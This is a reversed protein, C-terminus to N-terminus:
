LNDILRVGGIYYSIFINFKYKKNKSYKLTKLNLCELYEIKNVGFDLIDNIIIKKNNAIYLKLIKNKNKKLYKYVLSAIKIQKNNLKLNRSSLMVGNKDRISNCAIVNIRINNKIVHQKILTLQQFDKLGLFISKPMIIEIFRNVVDIVGKFHGPRYKGCLLKSFRNLYIKKDTKHSYIDKYTPIYLYKVKKKELVKIDRSINRPYNIYDNKSNFQKPNVFISVLVNQSEKKAKDILSLHGKHLFGMTPVFAITKIKSIENILKKKDKFIKM